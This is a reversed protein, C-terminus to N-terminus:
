AGAGIALGTRPATLGFLAPIPNRFACPLGGSNHEALIGPWIMVRRM